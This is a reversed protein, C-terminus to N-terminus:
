DIVKPVLYLGDASEPACAQFTDRQDSESVADDRMRLTADFPHTMVDVGETDATDMQAVLDLINNLDLKLKAAESETVNLRSLRAIKEIEKSDM